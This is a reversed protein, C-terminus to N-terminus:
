KPTKGVKPRGTTADLLQSILHIAAPSEPELRLLMKAVLMAEDIRGEGMLLSTYQVVVQPSRPYLVMAQRWAFDAADRMRAQEAAGQSHAARWAYLTAISGRLTSYHIQSYHNAMFERDGGFEGLARQGYIRDAFEVVERVTTRETLWDGVAEATLREWFARDEALEREPIVRLPERNVEFIFGRPLLHPFMWDLPFSVEVFLARGPNKEFLTKALHANIQMAALHGSVKVIPGDREISEGFLLRGVKERKRADALYESFARQLDESSPTSIRHGYMIRLYELYSDDVLQNQTVLFFPRGERQSTMLASIAFRGPDSGGMYISGPPVTAMIGDGFKRLWKPNWERFQEMAGVVERIPIWLATKAVPKRGLKGEGEFLGTDAALEQELNTSGQWDGAAARDFFKWVEDPIRNTLGVAIDKAQEQKAAVFKRLVPDFEAPPTPPTAQVQLPTALVTETSPTKAVPPNTNKVATPKEAKCSKLLVVCGVILILLFLAYFGLKYGNFRKEPVVEADIVAPGRQNSEAGRRQEERRQALAAKFTALEGASMRGETAELANALPLLERAVGVSMCLRQLEERRAPNEDISRRLEAKEEASCEFSVLKMALERFREDSVNSM